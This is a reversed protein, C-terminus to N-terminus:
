SGTGGKALWPNVKGEGVEEGMENRWENFLTM